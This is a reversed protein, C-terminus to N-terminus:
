RAAPPLFPLMFVSCMSTSRARYESQANVVDTTTSTPARSSSATSSAYLRPRLTSFRSSTAAPTPASLMVGPTTISAGSRVASSRMPRTPSARTYTPIAISNAQMTSRPRAVVRTGHPLMYSNMLRVLKQPNIAAATTSRLGCNRASHTKTSTGSSIRSDTEPLHSYVLAAGTIGASCDYQSGMWTETTLMPEPTNRTAPTALM